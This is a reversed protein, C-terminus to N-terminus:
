RVQRGFPKVRGLMTTHTDVFISPYEGLEADDCPAECSKCAEELPSFPVNADRLSSVLDFSDGRNLAKKVLWM